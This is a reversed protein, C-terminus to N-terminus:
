PFLVLAEVHREVVRGRVGHLAKALVDLEGPISAELEDGPEAPRALRRPEGEELPPEGLVAEVDRAHVELIQRRGDM